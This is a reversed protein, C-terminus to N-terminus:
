DPRRPSSVAGGAHFVERGAFQTPAYQGVARPTTKVVLAGTRNGLLEELEVKGGHERDGAMVATQEGHRLLVMQASEANM